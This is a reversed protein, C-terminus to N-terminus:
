FAGSKGLGLFLRAASYFAYESLAHIHSFIQPSSNLNNRMYCISYVSKYRGFIAFIILDLRRYVSKLSTSRKSTTWSFADDFLTDNEGAWKGSTAFFFEWEKELQIRSSLSLSLTTSREWPAPGSAPAFSSEGDFSYTDFKAKVTAAFSLTETTTWLVGGELTMRHVSYDGGEQLGGQFQYLNGLAFSPSLTGPPPPWRRAQAPKASEEQAIAGPITGLLFLFLIPISTAKM